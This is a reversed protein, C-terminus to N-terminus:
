FGVLTNVFTVLDSVAQEAIRVSRGLCCSGYDEFIRVFAIVNALSSSGAYAAM